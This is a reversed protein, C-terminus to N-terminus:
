QYTSQDSPIVPATNATPTETAGSDTPVGDQVTTNQEAPPNSVPPPTGLDSDIVDNPDVTNIQALAPSAVLAGAAAVLVIRKWCLGFSQALVSIRM